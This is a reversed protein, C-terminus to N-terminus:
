GEGGDALAALKDYRALVLDHFAQMTTNEDDGRELLVETLAESLMSRAREARDKWHALASQLTALADRYAQEDTSVPPLKPTPASGLGELEMTKAECSECSMGYHDVEEDTLERGCTLCLLMATSM